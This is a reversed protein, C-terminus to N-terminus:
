ARERCTTVWTDYDAQTIRLEGNPLKICDPARGKARWEHFTRKSIEWEACFEKVTWKRRGSAGAEPRSPAPRTPAPRSRPTRTPPRRNPNSV